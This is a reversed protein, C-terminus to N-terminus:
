YRSSKFINRIGGRREHHGFLLYLLIMTYVIHEDVIYYSSGVHPFHLLAFYLFLMLVIGLFAAIRTAIGCILLLGVLLYLGIVAYSIYGVLPQHALSAYFKPFTTAGQIYQLVSWGPHSVAIIGQYLFVWGLAMRLLMM